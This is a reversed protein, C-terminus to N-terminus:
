LIIYYLIIIFPTALIYGMYGWLIDALCFHNLTNGRDGYEKSLIAASIIYFTSVLVVLLSVSLWMMLLASVISIAFVVVLHKLKDLGVRVIFQRIKEFLNKM